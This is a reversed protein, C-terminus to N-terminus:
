KIYERKPKGALERSNQLGTQTQIDKTGKTREGESM